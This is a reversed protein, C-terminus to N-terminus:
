EVMLKGYVKQVEFLSLNGYTFIRYNRLNKKLYDEIASKGVYAIVFLRKDEPIIGPDAIEIPKPFRL